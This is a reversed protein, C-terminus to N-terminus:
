CLLLLTLNILNRTLIFRLYLYGEQYIMIGLQLRSFLVRKPGQHGSRNANPVVRRPSRYCFLFCTYHTPSVCLPLPGAAPPHFQRLSNLPSPPPPVSIFSLFITNPHRSHSRSFYPFPHYAGGPAITSPAVAAAAGGLQGCYPRHLHRRVARRLSSWYGAILAHTMWDDSVHQRCSRGGGGGGICRGLARRRIRVGM